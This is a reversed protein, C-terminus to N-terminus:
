HFKDEILEHMQYSTLKTLYDLSKKGRHLVKWRTGIIAPRTLVVGDSMLRFYRGIMPDTYALAVVRYYDAVVEGHKYLTAM